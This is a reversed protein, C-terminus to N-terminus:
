VQIPFYEVVTGTGPNDLKNAIDEFRTIRHREAIYLTGKDFVIGNPSRMGKLITKVERKGGREVIAYISTQVRNSVFVTGKEGLALSRADPVGDAWIEIKFGDPLKLKSM